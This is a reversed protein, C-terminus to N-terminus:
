ALKNFKELKSALKLENWVELVRRVYNKTERAKGGTIYHLVGAVEEWRSATGRKKYKAIGEAKRINWYGANYSALSFKIREAGEKSKWRLWMKKFYGIGGLINKEANFANAVKMEEATFPMLQMIGMAGCSSVAHPNLGSEVIGQAKFFLWDIEDDPFYIKTAQKFFDDFVPTYQKM